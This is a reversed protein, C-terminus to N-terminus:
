SRVKVSGEGLIALFERARAGPDPSSFLDRIVAVSDVGAEIVSRANGVTIGGIAVLPKATAERAQRLGELGVTPDPREKSQTAFIPGFAIYDASSTDAERVQSLDHTSYGVWREPGVVRRALEVPLDEQGVHVGAAGVAVAIDARDNVIFTCERGGIHEALELATKYTALATSKKDRYQILRVGAALLADLVERPARGGMQAPDMIAYLRPIALRM